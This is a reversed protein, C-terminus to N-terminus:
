RDTVFGTAISVRADALLCFWFSLRADAADRPHRDEVARVRAVGLGERPHMGICINMRSDICMGVRTDICRDTRM